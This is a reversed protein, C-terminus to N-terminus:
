NKAVPVTASQQYHKGLKGDKAAFAAIQPRQFRRSADPKGACGAM